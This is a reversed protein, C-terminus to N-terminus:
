KNAEYHETGKAGEISVCWENEKGNKPEMDINDHNTFETAGLYFEGQIETEFSKDGCHPCTCTFFTKKTSNKVKQIYVLPAGCTSCNIAVEGLDSLGKLERNEESM